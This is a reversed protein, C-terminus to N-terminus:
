AQMIVMCRHVHVIIQVPGSCVRLASNPGAVWLARLLPRDSAQAKAETTAGPLSLEVTAPIGCSDM